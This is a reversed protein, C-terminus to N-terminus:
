NEIHVRTTTAADRKGEEASKGKLDTIAVVLAQHADKLATEVGQVQEKILMIKGSMMSGLMDGSPTSSAVTGSGSIIAAIATKAADLKVKAADIKTKAIALDAKAKTTNIGKEGLKTIRSDIRGAVNTLRDLAAELRKIVREGQKKIMSAMRNQMNNKMEGRKQEIEGRRDEMKQKMEGRTTSAATRAEMMKDRMEGMEKTTSARLEKRMIVPQYQRKGTPMGSASDRPSVVTGTTAGTDTTVGTATEAFAMPASALLVFALAFVHTKKM